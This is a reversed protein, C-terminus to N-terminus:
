REPDQEDDADVRDEDLGLDQHLLEIYDILESIQDDRETIAEHLEGNFELQEGLLQRLEVAKQVSEEAAERLDVEVGAAARIFQRKSVRYVISAAIYAAIALVVIRTCAIMTKSAFVTDIFSPDPEHPLDEPVLSAVAFYLGVGVAATILLGLLLTGPGAPADPRKPDSTM